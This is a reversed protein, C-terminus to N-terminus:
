GDAREGLGWRKALAALQVALDAVIRGDATEVRCALLPLAPDALVTTDDADALTERVAPAVAQGVRVMVGQGQVNALATRALGAAVQEDPLDGLMREVVTMAARAVEAERRANEAALATNLEALAAGLAEGMEALAEARGAAYGAAREAEAAQAAADRIARAEALLAAADRLPRADSAPIRNSPLRVLSDGLLLLASM